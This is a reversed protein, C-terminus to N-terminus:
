RVTPDTRAHCVETHTTQIITQIITARHATPETTFTAVNSSTPTM